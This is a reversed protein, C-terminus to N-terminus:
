WLSAGRARIERFPNVYNLIAERRLLVKRIIDSAAMRDTVIDTTVVM